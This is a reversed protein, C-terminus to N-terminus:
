RAGNTCGFRPIRSSRNVIMLAEDDTFGKLRYYAVQEAFEADTYDAMEKSSSTSRVRCSERESKRRSVRGRGDLAGRRAHLVARSSFPRANTRRAESAPSSGLDDLPRGTRSSSKASGVSANLASATSRTPSERPPADKRASLSPCSQRRQNRTRQVREHSEFTKTASRCTPRRSETESRSRRISPTGNAM